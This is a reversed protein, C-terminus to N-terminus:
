VEFSIQTKEGVPKAWQELRTVRYNAIIKEEDLNKDKKVLKDMTTQLNNFSTQLSTVKVELPDVKEDIYDFIPQFNIETM